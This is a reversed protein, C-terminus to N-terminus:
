NKAEVCRGEWIGQKPGKGSTRNWTGTFSTRPGIWPMQLRMEGTGSVDKWEGELYIVKVNTPSSGWPTEKGKSDVEGSDVHGTITGGNSSYSGSVNYGRLEGESKLAIKLRGRNTEWEGNFLETCGKPVTNEYLERSYLAVRRESVDTDFMRSWGKVQFANVGPNCIYTEVIFAPAGYYEMDRLRGGSDANTSHKKADMLPKVQPSWIYKYAVDHTGSKDGRSYTILEIREVLAARSEDTYQVYLKDVDPAKYEILTKSVSQVPQGLVREIDAKTSQGPTLGKYTSQAFGTVSSFVILFCAFSLKM